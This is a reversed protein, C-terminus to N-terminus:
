ASPTPTPTMERCIETLYAQFESRKAPPIACAGVHSAKNGCNRFCKEKVWWRACMWDTNGWKPRDGTRKRAFDKSWDEGEKLLFEKVPATNKVM